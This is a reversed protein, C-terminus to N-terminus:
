RKQMVGGRSPQTSERRLDFRTEKSVALAFAVNPSEQRAGHAAFVDCQRIARPANKGSHRNGQPQWTAHPPQGLFVEQILFKEEAFEFGHLSSEDFSEQPAVHRHNIDTRIM